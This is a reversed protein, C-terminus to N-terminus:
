QYLDLFFSGVSTGGVDDSEPGSETEGSTRHMQTDQLVEGADLIMLTNLTSLQPSANRCAAAAACGDWGAESDQNSVTWFHKRTDYGRGKWVVGVVQRPAADGYRGKLTQVIEGTKPNLQRSYDYLPKIAHASRPIDYGGMTLMFAAWDSATATQRITELDEEDAKELRRLQRWITVSPGGIQQFQRIGWINAWAIIHEAAEHADNGYLDQELAHGDINKAIYKAIYGTATGKAPDIAIAKFRHIQAGPEDGSDALAYHRMVERVTERHEPPMFLLLHWHPTGDHHPEVVRFGYPRIGQRHLEARILAWLHTLYQHAQLPTTGDYRPNPKGNHLCAHMRSPATLTDFDGVHGLLGAVMEFGKSRVMQETRRIAPNSVTRDALDQLSFREGNENSIFTSALYLRNNEKQKRKLKVTYDSAYTSRCRSVLEIDRAVAEISRLRLTQIKRSWWRFDCM